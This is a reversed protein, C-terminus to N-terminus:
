KHLVIEGFMKPNKWAKDVKANWAIKGDRQKGSDDDNVEVEFGIRQNNRPKIKFVAWPIATELRYGNPIPKMTFTIANSITKSEIGDIHVKKDKMRYSLKIDNKGDFSKRRSSDMDLYIEISDDAWTEKSDQVIKDDRVNVWISLNKDDWNARWQASLDNKDDVDGTILNGVSIAKSVPQKKATAVYPITISIPKEAVAETGTVLHKAISLPKKHHVINSSSCGQWWCPQGRNFALVARYKPAQSATQTIYEKIGWSGHWTYLRPASFLVFLKGGEKKWGSLLHYYLQAMRPDKNAQLLFPTAGEKLSHTKYDVLHQGGEYAILDVGYRKTINAQQHVFKLINGISYRNAPDVLRKFVDNVSRVKKIDKQGIQVYPGIAFADVYKYANKYGLLMQTLKLDSTLGGMVRVLRKTSGFVAQWQKFIKVSQMSYYKAGAVRRDKDLRYRVGTQKMHEAQPVFLDNWTENSYEIYVKLHPRLHEKVYKAYHYIYISGANHPINFWPDINLQNALEVMIELPIGRVGEKGGWTAKELTPRDKWLSINNRTVGGMNMFRVVKFDKMFNLYDPNFIIQRYHEAFSLYQRGRCAKKHNVRKYVDGVCIGGPMLIRINRLHDKPNTKEIFLTATVLNDKMPVFRILDKGKSRKVLKASAGYRIHGEGEYRVTYLGAPLNKVPMHSLFRTGAQGKHLDQPWGNKDFTVNGKTFWPRAEDFPLALRFLDVFPLSADNELAENTNIGLPSNLNGTPTSFATNIIIFFFFLAIFLPVVTRQITTM